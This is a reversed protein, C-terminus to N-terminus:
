FVGKLFKAPYQQQDQQEDGRGQKGVDLGQVYFDLFVQVVGGRFRVPVVGQVKEIFGIKHHVQVIAQEPCVPGKIFLDVALGFVGDPLANDREEM